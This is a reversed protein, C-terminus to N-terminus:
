RTRDCLRAEVAAFVIAAKWQTSVDFVAIFEVPVRIDEIRILTTLEGAWVEYHFSTNEANPDAHVSASATQVICLHLTERLRQFVSVDFDFLIDAQRLNTESHLM